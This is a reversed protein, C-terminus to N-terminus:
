ELKKIEEESLVRDFVMLEHLIGTFSHYKRDRGIRNMGTGRKNILSESCTVVAIRPETFDSNLVESVPRPDQGDLRISGDGFGKGGAWAGHGSSITDANGHLPGQDSGAIIYFQTTSDNLVPTSMSHFSVITRVGDPLGEEDELNIQEV